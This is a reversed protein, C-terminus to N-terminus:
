SVQLIVQVNPNNMPYMHEPAPISIANMMRGGNSRALSKNTPIAATPAGKSEFNYNLNKKM